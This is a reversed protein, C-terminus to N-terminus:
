KVVAKKQPFPRDTLGVYIQRSASDQTVQLAGERWHADLRGYPCHCVPRYVHKRRYRHSSALHGFLFRHQPYLGKEKFYIMM